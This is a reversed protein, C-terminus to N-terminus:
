GMVRMEIRVLTQGLTIPDVDLIRRQSGRVTLIDGRRPYPPGGAGGPFGDRALGTPSMIVLLEDQSQESSRVFPEDRLRYSRVRARCTATVITGSGTRQVIVDTGVGDDTGIEGLADDLEELEESM